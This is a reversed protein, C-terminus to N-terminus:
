LALNSDGYAGKRSKMVPSVSEEGERTKHGYSSLNKANMVKNKKIPNKGDVKKPDEKEKFILPKRFAKVIRLLRILRLLKFIKGIRSTM